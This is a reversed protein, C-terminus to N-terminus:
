DGGRALGRLAERLRESDALAETGRLILAARLTGGPDPPAQGGAIDAGGGIRAPTGSAIGAAIDASATAAAAPPAPAQVPTPASIPGPSLGPSPVTERAAVPRDQAGLGTAPPPPEVAPPPRDQARDGTPPAVVAPRPPTLSAAPGPAPSAAAGDTPAPPEPADPPPPAAAEPQLLAALTALGLARFREALAGRTAPDLGPARWDGRTLALELFEPDPLQAAAHWLAGRLAALRAVAGATPDLWGALRDLLAFGEGPRAATAHHLIALEMVRRGAETTREATALAVADELLAPPPREGRGLAIELRLQLPEIRGPAAADLRLAARESDGRAQDLAAALRPLQAAAPDGTRAMAEYAIRAPETAGIELLRTVLDPGLAARLGEPLTQFAAVIRHAHQRVPEPPAGALAAFLATPGPCAILGALDRRANSQRTELIDAIATLVERGETGDGAHDLVMRAEAGFGWRLYLDALGRLGAADPQDFEGYLRAHIAALAQAFPPGPADTAFALVGPAPCHGDSADEPIPHDPGGADRLRLTDPLPPAAPAPQPNRGEAPAAPEVLGQAMALGLHAALDAFTRDLHQRLAPDQSPDAPAEAPHDAQALARALARGAARANAEASPPAPPPAPPTPAPAEPDPDRIDLVLVGARDEWIQHPCPCALMVQYGGEDLRMAAVRSRPIRRFIQDRDLRLPRGPIRIEIRGPGEDLDWDFGRASQLVIRTFGMHEGATVTVPQAGAPLAAVLLLVLLRIM